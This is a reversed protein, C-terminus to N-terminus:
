VEEFEAVVDLRVAGAMVLRNNVRAKIPSDEDWSTDGPLLIEVLDGIIPIEVKEGEDDDKSIKGWAAPELSKKFRVSGAIARYQGQESNREQRELGTCIAEEITGALSTDNGAYRVQANTDEVAGRVSDILQAGLNSM